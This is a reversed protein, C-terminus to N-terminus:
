KSATSHTPLCTILLVCASTATLALISPALPVWIGQILLVICFWYLLIILVGVLTILPLPSQLIWAILGATISWAWVWLIEQWWLWYWLLPRGDEVASVIDSIMEAQIMVGPIQKYFAKGESCPTSFSSIVSPATVGILIIRDKVSDTNIQGEMVSKLRIREAVDQHCSRYNLLIQYGRADLRQYSGINSKLKRLVVEGLQVLKEPTIKTQTGKAKLYHHALLFSFSSKSQCLSAPEPKMALLHRRIVGDPDRVVDSFGIRKLPILENPPAIGPKNMNDSDSSSCVMLLNDNQQLNKRLDKYGSEVPSDRIIGLGIVQPKHQRLKTILESLIQDPLPYKYKKIDEETAEVILLRSDIGEGPRLRMLQDFAKLEWKQLMGLPRMVGMVLGTVVLSALIVKGLNLLNNVQTESLKDELKIPTLHEKTLLVPILHEPVKIAENADVVTGKRTTTSPNIEAQIRDCGWEYAFNISKGNGLAEYFGRTFARAADDLIEQRMGIVYNIHKVIEQGQVESYCANLLICEIQNRFHRFFNALAETSVLHQQGGDNELVLGQTGSGHGCFHVIWPKVELLALTLDEVRVAERTEVIFQERNASRRLGERIDRIERPLKLDGRPNATLILIKKAM